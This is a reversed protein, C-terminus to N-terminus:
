LKQNQMSVLKINYCHMQLKYGCLKQEYICKKPSGQLAFYGTKRM